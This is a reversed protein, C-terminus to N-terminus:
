CAAADDPAFEPREPNVPEPTPTVVPCVCETVAGVSEVPVASLIVKVVDSVFM